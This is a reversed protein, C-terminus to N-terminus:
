VNADSSVTSITFTVTITASRLIPANPIAKFQYKIVYGDGDATGSWCTGVGEALTVDTQDSLEKLGTLTGKSEPYVFNGNPQGLEVHLTTGVLPESIKATINRVEGNNVQSSIRLRTLDNEVSAQIAGGAEVAGALVLKVPPGAVALLASGAVQLVVEQKAERSSQSFASFPMTSALIAIITYLARKM